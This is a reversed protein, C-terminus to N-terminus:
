QSSLNENQNLHELQERLKTMVPEEAVVSFNKDPFRLEFNDRLEELDAGQCVFDDTMRDWSYFRGNIEEVVLRMPMTQHLQKAEQIKDHLRMLLKHEIWRRIMWGALLVIIVTIITDDM